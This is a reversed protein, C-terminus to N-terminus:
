VLFTTAVLSLINENKEREGNNNPTRSVSQSSKPLFSFAANSRVFSLASLFCLLENSPGKEAWARSVRSHKRGFFFINSIHFFAKKKSTTSAADCTKPSTTKSWEPSRCRPPPFLSSTECRKKRNAKIIVSRCFKPLFSPLFHWKWSLSKCSKSSM